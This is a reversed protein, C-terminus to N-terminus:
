VLGTEACRELTGEFFRGFVELEYRDRIMTLSSHDPLFKHLDTCLTGTYRSVTWKSRCLSGRTAFTRSSCSWGGNSFFGLISARIVMVLM